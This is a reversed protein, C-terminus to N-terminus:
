YKRGELSYTNLILFVTSFSVFFMIDATGLVGRQIGEFHGSVAFAQSLFSGVGPIWGDMIAVFFQTGALV